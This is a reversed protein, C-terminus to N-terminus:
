AQDFAGIGKILEILASREVETLQPNWADMLLIVRLRDSPNWAQHEFTDDFVVFCGAQWRHLEGGVEIACDAPIVLPLHTVLRINTVGTHPLIHTGPALVSFCIEPAHGDIRVLPTLELAASTRPCRQHNRDFRVGGRFFFLADWAAPTEGQGLYDSVRDHAGFNLFPQLGGAEGQEVIALAEDRIEPYASELGGIWPFQANAHYPRDILDPFYLFRPRQRPDRPHRTGPQLYGDLAVLVRLLESRGFQAIMPEIVRYFYQRRFAQAQDMAALVQPRLWTPTSREDLWDGQLQATTIARFFARSADDRRGLRNLANGLQLHAAALKPDIALARGLTAVAAELQGAATQAVGLSRILNANAPESVAAVLLLAVSRDPDGGTMAIRALFTLAEVNDPAIELAARYENEAGSLDGAASRERARNIASAEPRSDSATM